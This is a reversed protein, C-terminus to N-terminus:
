FILTLAASSQLFVNVRLGDQDLLFIDWGEPM